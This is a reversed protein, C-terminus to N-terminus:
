EDGASQGFTWHHWARPRPLSVRGPQLMGVGGAGFATRADRVVWLRRCLLSGQVEDVVEGQPGNGGRADGDRERSAARQAARVAGGVRREGALLRRRVHEPAEDRAERDVIVRLRERDGAALREQAGREQPLKGLGGREDAALGGRQRPHEPGGLPADRRRD